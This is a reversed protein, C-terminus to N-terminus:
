PVGFLESQKSTTRRSPNGKLPHPNGRDPTISPVELHVYLLLLDYMHKVTIAELM